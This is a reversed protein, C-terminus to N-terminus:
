PRRFAHRAARQPRGGRSPRREGCTVSFAERVGQVVRRVGCTTVCSLFRVVHIEVAWGLTTWWHLGISCNSQRYKPSPGGSTLRVTPLHGRDTREITDGNPHEPCVVRRRVEM